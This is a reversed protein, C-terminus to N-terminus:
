RMILSEFVDRKSHTLTLGMAALSYGNKWMVIFFIIALGLTIRINLTNPSETIHNYEATDRLIMFFAMIVLLYTMFRATQVQNKLLTIEKKLSTTAVANTHRLREPLVYSLNM